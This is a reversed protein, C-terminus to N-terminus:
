NWKDYSVFLLSSINNHMYYTYTRPIWSHDSSSYVYDYLPANPLATGIQFRCPFYKKQVWSHLLYLIKNHCPQFIRRQKSLPTDSSPRTMTLFGSYHTKATTSMNIQKTNTITHLGLLLLAIYPLKQLWPSHPGPLWQDTNL